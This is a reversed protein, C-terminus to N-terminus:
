YAIYDHRQVFGPEVEITGASEGDDRIVTEYDVTITTRINAFSYFNFTGADYVYLAHDGPNARTGHQPAGSSAPVTTEIAANSVNYNANSGTLLASHLPRIAKDHYPPDDDDLSEPKFWVRLTLQMGLESPLLFSSCTVTAEQYHNEMNISCIRVPGAKVLGSLSAATVPYCSYGGQYQRIAPLESGTYAPRTAFVTGGHEGSLGMWVPVNTALVEVGGVNTPVNTIKINLQSVVRFATGEVWMADIDGNTDGDFEYNYIYGNDIKNNQGDEWVEHRESKNTHTVGLWDTTRTIGYYSQTEHGESDWHYHQGGTYNNDLEAYNGNKVEAPFPYLIGYFLEPTYVTEMGTQNGTARDLGHGTPLMLVENTYKLEETPPITTFADKDKDNYALGTVLFAQRREYAVSHRFFAFSAKGARWAMDVKNGDLYPLLNVSNDQLSLGNNTINHMKMDAASFSQSTGKMGKWATYYRIRMRDANCQGAIAPMNDARTGNADRGGVFIGGASTAATEPIDPTESPLIDDQTCACCVVAALLAAATQLIHQSHHTM